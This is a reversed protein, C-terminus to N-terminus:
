NVQRARNPIPSQHLVSTLLRFHSTLPNRVESRWGRVELKEVAELGQGGHRSNMPAVAKRMAGPMSVIVIGLTLCYVTVTPGRGPCVTVSSVPLSAPRAPPATVM